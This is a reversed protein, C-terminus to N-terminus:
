RAGFETAARVFATILPHHEGRLASREPQFLTGIFFPHAPLEGARVEGAEDFGTFRLGAAELRGRWAPNPGYNCHYDETAPKGGFLTHLRSGPTFTIASTKEVLSCALRTVVLEPAGPNTEAHDATRAGCVHRVFEILAHQFGGCTGLFPRGTERAFRIAELAGAMSAYPGGPVAWVAHCSALEAAADRIAATPIWVEEVTVGVETGALALARPIARHALVADSRDGVLAVRITFLGPKM